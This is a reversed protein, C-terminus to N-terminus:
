VGTSEVARMLAKAKNLTEEYEKEPVSDAVIGAGAQIYGKGDKILMMRIAICMDMDGSFGFYGISGAYVNRRRNELEDIIEMARIKPAGSVTGAPFCAKLLDYADKEKGLRGKVNSVLHMVKSYKEIIFLDTVRVSGSECVHGIDNRSLDLLMIHEAREKEDSILQAKIVEDEEPTKGRPRTGAIPRITVEQHDLKVLIEPSSGLIYNGDFNLYYMYPSPNTLRMANYVRLPETQIDFSLRQSLVVQFIDGALIYEKCKDVAECFEEKTFNSNFKAEVKKSGTPEFETNEPCQQVSEVLRHFREFDNEQTYLIVEATREKHDFVVIEEPLIFYFEPMDIDNLNEDPIIEIQRIGDYSMYGVAGGSFPFVSPWTECDQTLEKLEYLPNGKVKYEKGYFTIDIDHGRSKFILFPKGGVFSFRGRQGLSELSEYLFSHSCNDYLERFVALPSRELSLTKHRLKIDKLTIEPNM